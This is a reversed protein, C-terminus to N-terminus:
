AELAQAHAFIHWRGNTDEAVLNDPDSELAVHRAYASTAGDFSFSNGENGNSDVSVRETTGTQRDHVFIDDADNTDTAVLNSASSRFAVYRGDASIAPSFSYDNGQAGSSDVSVRRTAGTQRDHVFVDSTGNTDDAVLNSANSWFAVYRGDASISPHFSSDNGHSGSSNVSVLETTGTQRDHVFIDTADNTDGAVLNSARSAFAVYRGGASIAPPSSLGDGGTGASDVSVRETTGPAAPGFCAPLFLLLAMLGVVAPLAALIALFLGIGRLM